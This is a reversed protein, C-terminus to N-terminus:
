KSGQAVGQYKKQADKNFLARFVASCPYASATNSCSVSVIDVKSFLQNNPDSINVAIQAAAAYNKTSASLDIGGSVQSLSLTSLVTGPPMVRGIDQILDSFRIESGLVQNVTKINNTLEKSQKQVQELNQSSLQDKTDSISRSLDKSQRDMYFWGVALIVILGATALWILGVWRRLQSDRKHSQIQHHYNPPLLNIM